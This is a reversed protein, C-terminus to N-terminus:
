FASSGTVNSWRSRSRRAGRDVTQLAAEAWARSGTISAPPRASLANWEEECVDALSTLVRAEITM